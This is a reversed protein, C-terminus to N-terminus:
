PSYDALNRTESSRWALISSHTVNGEKLPDEWDLCLFKKEHQRRRQCVPEKGRAGDPFGSNRRWFGLVFGWPFPPLNCPGADLYLANEKGKQEWFSLFSVPHWRHLNSTSQVTCTQTFVEPKQWVEYFKQIELTLIVSFDVPKLDLSFCHRYPSFLHLFRKQPLLFRQPFCM